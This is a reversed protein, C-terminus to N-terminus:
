PFSSNAVAPILGSEFDSLITTPKLQLGLRAAERHLIVFLTNCFSTSKTSTLCFVVPLLKDLHFIHISFLQGGMFLAPSSDFTGDMTWLVANSLQILGNPTCFLIITMTQALSWLSLNVLFPPQLALLSQSQLEPPQCLPFQKMRQRYM